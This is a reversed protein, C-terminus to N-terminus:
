ATTIYQFAYDKFTFTLKKSVNDIFGGRLAASGTYYKDKGLVKVQAYILITYNKAKKVTIPADCSGDVNIYDNLGAVDGAPDVFFVRAKFEKSGLNKFCITVKAEGNKFNGAHYANHVVEKTQSYGVLYSAGAVILVLAIVKLLPVKVSSIKAKAQTQELSLFNSNNQIM